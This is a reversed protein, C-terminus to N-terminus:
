DTESTETAPAVSEHAVIIKWSGDVRQYIATWVGDLVQTAGTKDTMGEHFAGTIVGLDPGLVLVTPEGTWTLSITAANSLVTHVASVVSDPGQYITTNEVYTRVDMLQALYHSGDLRNFPIVISDAAARIEAAVETREADTMPAPPAPRCGVTLAGVVMLVSINRGSM